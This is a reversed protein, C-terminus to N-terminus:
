HSPLAEVVGVTDRIVQFVLVDDLEIEDQKGRDRLHIVQEAAKKVRFARAKGEPSLVRCNVAQNILYGLYFRQERGTKYDVAGPKGLKGRRDLIDYLVLEILARCLVICAKRLGFAYADRIESYYGDIAKDPHHTVVICGVQVKRYKHDRWVDWADLLSDHDELPDDWKSRIFDETSTLYRENIDEIHTNLSDALSRYRRILFFDGDDRIQQLIERVKLDSTQVTTNEGLGIKIENWLNFGTHCLTMLELLYEHMETLSQPIASEYTLESCERELQGFKKAQQILHSIEM